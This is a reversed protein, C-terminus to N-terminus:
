REVCPDRHAEAFALALDDDLEPGDVVKLAYDFEHIRRLRSGGYSTIVDSHCLPSGVKTYDNGSPAFGKRLLIIRGITSSAHREAVCILRM